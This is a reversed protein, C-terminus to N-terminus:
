LDGGGMFCEQIPQFWGTRSDQGKWHEGPELTGSNNWVTCELVLPTLQKEQATDAQELEATLGATVALIRHRSWM